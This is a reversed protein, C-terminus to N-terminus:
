ADRFKLWKIWSSLGDLDPFLSKRNIGYHNLTRRLDDRINNPIIIRSLNNHNFEEFPNMQISFVSSQVSMRATVNKPIIFMNKNIEDYGNYGSILEIFSISERENCIYVASDTEVTKEVAFYLAILPNYTWDMLRTPLGHHQGLFIFDWFDTLLRDSYRQSEAKFITLAHEEEEYFRKWNKDKVYKSKIRGISPILKHDEINNVGRFYIGVDCNDYIYQHFDTFSKIKIEKM